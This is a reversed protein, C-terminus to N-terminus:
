LVLVVVAVLIGVILGLGTNDSDDAMKSRWHRCRAVPDDPLAARAARGFRFDDGLLPRGQGSAPAHRNEKKDQRLGMVGCGTRREPAPILTRWGQPQALPHVRGYRRAAGTEGGM